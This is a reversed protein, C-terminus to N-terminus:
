NNRRERPPPWKQRVAISYKTALMLLRPHHPKWFDVFAAFRSKMLINRTSNWLWQICSVFLSFLNKLNRIGFGSSCLFTNTEKEWYSCGDDGGFFSYNRWRSDHKRQSKTSVRLLNRFLCPECISFRVTQPISEKRCCWYYLLLLLSHSMRTGSCCWMSVLIWERMRLLVCDTSFSPQIHSLSSQLFLGGHLIVMDFTEDFHLYNNRMTVLKFM